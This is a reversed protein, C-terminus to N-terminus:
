LYTRRRKVEMLKFISMKVNIYKLLLQNLLKDSVILTM